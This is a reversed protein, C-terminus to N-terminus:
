RNCGPHIQAKLADIERQLQQRVSNYWKIADPLDYYVRKGVLGTHQLCPDPFGPYKVRLSNLEVISLGWRHALDATTWKPRKDGPRPAQKVFGAGYSM